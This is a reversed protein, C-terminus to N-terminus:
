LSTAVVGGTAVALLGLSAFFYEWYGGWSILLALGFAFSAGLAVLWLVSFFFRANEYMRGNQRMERSHALVRSM